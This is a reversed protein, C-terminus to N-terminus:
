QVATYQTTSCQVASLQVVSCQVTSHQVIRSQVVISQITSCQGASYHITDTGLRSSPLVPFYWCSTLPTGSPAARPFGKVSHQYKGTSGSELWPVSMVWNIINTKSSYLSSFAVKTPASSTSSFVTSRITLITLTIIWYVVKLFQTITQVTTKQATTKQVTRNEGTSKLM